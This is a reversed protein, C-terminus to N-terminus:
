PPLGGLSAQDAHTSTPSPTPMPAATTSAANVARQHFSSGRTFSESFWNQSYSRGTSSRDATSGTSATSLPRIRRGTTPYLVSFKDDEDPTSVLAPGDDVAPAPTPVEVAVPPQKTRSRFM